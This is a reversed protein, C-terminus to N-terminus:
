NGAAPQVKATVAAPRVLGEAMEPFGYRRFTKELERRRPADSETERRLREIIPAAESPQGAGWAVMAALKPAAALEAANRITLQHWVTAARVYDRAKMLSGVYSFAFPFGTLNEQLSNQYLVWTLDTWGQAAALNSLALLAAPTQRYQILFRRCEGLWPAQDAGQRSGYAEIFRLRATVLGPFLELFRRAASRAEDKRGLRQAFDVYADQIAPEVPMQDRAATLRAFAAPGRGLEWDIEALLPAAKPWAALAVSRSALKAAEAAGATALVARLEVLAYALDPGNLLDVGRAPLDRRLLQLVEGFRGASVCTEVLATQLRPDGADTALGGRLTALAEDVRLAQRWCDALFLRAELNRPAKQVAARATVIARGFDGNKWLKDAATFYYAGIAAQVRPFRIPVAIDTWHVGPIERHIRYYGWLATALGLYCTLALVAGLGFLRRWRLVIRRRPPDGRMEYGGWWKAPAATMGAAKPTNM